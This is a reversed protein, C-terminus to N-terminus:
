HTSNPAVEGRAQNIEMTKEVSFGDLNREAMVNIVRQQQKNWISQFTM